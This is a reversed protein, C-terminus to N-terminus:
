RSGASGGTRASDALRLARELDERILSDNPRLRDAERFHPIAEDLRGTTALAIALFYHATGDEPTLQLAARAHREADDPRDQQVFLKALLVHATASRPDIELAREFRPAVEDLRGAGILAMGWRIENRASPARESIRRFADAAEEYREQTFRINAVGSLADLNSPAINLIARYQEAAADFQRQAILARALLTRAPVFSESSAQDIFRRLARSAEETEGAFFLEVGLAYGANPYDLVAERLQGLAESRRGVDILVTAYSLRARGHPRRDVVTKWLTVRDVFDDNRRVTTMACAALSAVVISAVASALLRSRRAMWDWLVRVLVAVLVSVAIMPIYMRREAGVESLIPLVSSTPALALFFVAGLFGARPWRILAVLTLLLLGSVLAAERTVDSFSLPRPLGYDLVLADPWVSLRLYRTVMQMQNLLYTQPSVDSSLGVMSREMTVVLIALLVWTAALAGYLRKRTRLADGMSDFEFTRDYLIVVLPAIVMSEKSAMGLSCFAVALVSWRGSPRHRARITSYLTLLLCLAALSETRQTVYNIVESQIPHLMWLLSAILATTEATGGFRATLSRGTLTKRVIAFILLACGVHILLNLLHYGVVDLGAAAYNLAFTVNVLPRGAVPTEGPPSLPVTLPWLQRITTNTVIATQDDWIFPGRLSNLYVLVGTAVILAFPLGRRWASTGPERGRGMSEPGVRASKRSKARRATQEWGTRGHNSQRHIAPANM